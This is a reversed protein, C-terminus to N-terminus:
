KIKVFIESNRVQIGIYRSRKITKSGHSTHIHTHFEELVNRRTQIRFIRFGIRIIQYRYYVYRIYKINNYKNDVRYKCSPSDRDYEINNGSDLFCYFHFDM